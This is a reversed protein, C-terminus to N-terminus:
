PLQVRIIDKASRDYGYIYGGAIDFRDFDVISIKRLEGTEQNFMLLDEITDRSYDPMFCYIYEEDYRSFFFDGTVTDEIFTRVDSGDLNMRKVEVKSFDESTYQLFFIYKNTVIYKNINMDSTVMMREESDIGQVFMDFTATVGSDSAHELYYRMGNSSPKGTVEHFYLTDSNGNIEAAYFASAYDGDDLFINLDVFMTDNIKCMYGLLLPVDIGEITLAVPEGEGSAAIRLISEKEYDYYYISDGYVVFYQILNQMIITSSQGTESDMRYLGAYNTYYVDGSYTQILSYSTNFDPDPIDFIGAFADEETEISDGYGSSDPAVSDPSRSATNASCGSILLVLIILSTIIYHKHM